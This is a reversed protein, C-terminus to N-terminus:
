MALSVFVPSITARFFILISLSLSPTHRREEREGEMSVGKRAIQYFTLHEKEQLERNCGYTFNFYQLLQMM